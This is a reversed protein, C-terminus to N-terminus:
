ETEPRRGSQGEKGFGSFITEFTAQLRAAYGNEGGPLLEDEGGNEVSYIRGGLGHSELYPRLDTEFDDGHFLEMASPPLHWSRVGLEVEEPSPNVGMRLNNLHTRKDFSPVWPHIVALVRQTWEMPYTGAKMEERMRGFSYDVGGAPHDQPHGNVGGSWEALYLRDQLRQESLQKLFSRYMGTPIRQGTVTFGFDPENHEHTHGTTVGECWEHYHNQGGTERDDKKIEELIFRADTFSNPEYLIDRGDLFKRLANIGQTKGTASPGVLVILNRTYIM